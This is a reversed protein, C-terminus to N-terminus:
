MNLTMRDIKRQVAAVDVSERAPVKEEEEDDEAEEEEDEDDEDEDDDDEEDENESDEEEEVEAEEADGDGRAKAALDTRVLDDLMDLPFGVDNATVHLQALHAALGEIYHDPVQQLWLCYDTIYLSVMVSKGDDRRLVDYVDQTTAASLHSLPPSLFFSSVLDRRSCMM